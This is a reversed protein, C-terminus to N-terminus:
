QDVVDGVGLGFLEGGGVDGEVQERGEFVIKAFFDAVFLLAVADLALAAEFGEGGPEIGANSLSSCSIFGRVSSMRSVLGNRVLKNRDLRWGELKPLKWGLVEL